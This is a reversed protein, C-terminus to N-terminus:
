KKRRKAPTKKVKVVAKEEYIEEYIAKLHILAPKSYYEDNDKEIRRSIIACLGEELRDLRRSCEVFGEATLKYLNDVSAIYHEKKDEFEVEYQRLEAFLNDIKNMLQERTEIM